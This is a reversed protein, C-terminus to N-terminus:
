KLKPFIRTPYDQMSKLRKVIVAWDLKSHKAMKIPENFNLDDFYSLAKIPL